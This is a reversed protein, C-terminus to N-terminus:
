APGRPKYIPQECPAGKGGGCWRRTPPGGDCQWLGLRAAKPDVELPAYYGGSYGTYDTAWGSRVMCAAVDMKDDDRWCEAILRRGILGPEIRQVRCTLTTEGLCARLAELSGWPPRWSTGKSTCQARWRPVDIGWLRIRDYGLRFEAGSAVSTVSGSVLEGVSRPAKQQAHARACLALACLVLVSVRM